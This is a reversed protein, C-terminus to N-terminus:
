PMWAQELVLLAYPQLLLASEVLALLDRLELTLSLFLALHLLDLAELFGGSLRLLV